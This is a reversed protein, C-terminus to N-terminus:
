SLYDCQDAIWPLLFASSLRVKLAALAKPLWGEFKKAVAEGTTPEVWPGDYTRGHGPTYKVALVNIFKGGSVPYFVM